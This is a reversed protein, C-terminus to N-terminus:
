LISKRFKGMTSLAILLLVRLHRLHSILDQGQVQFRTQRTLYFHHATTTTLRIPEM